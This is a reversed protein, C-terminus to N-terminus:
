KVKFSSIEVYGKGVDDPYEYFVLMFPLEGGASPLDIGIKELLALKQGDMRDLEDLTFSVGGATVVEAMTKGNRDLLVGKIKLDTVTKPSSNLVKGRLVVVERGSALRLHQNSVEVLQLHKELNISFQQWLSFGILFVLGLILITGFFLLLSNNRTTGGGGASPQPKLGEDVVAAAAQENALDSNETEDGAAADFGGDKMPSESDDPFTADPGSSAPEEAEAEASGVPASTELNEPTDEAFDNVPVAIDGASTLEDVDLELGAEPSEVAKESFSTFDEDLEIDNVDVLSETDESVPLGDPGTESLSAIV